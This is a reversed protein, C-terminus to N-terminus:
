DDFLIYKAIDTSDFFIIMEYNFAHGRDVTYYLRSKFEGDDFQISNNPQGLIILLEQKSKDIIGISDLLYNVMQGRQRPTGKQWIAKEFKLDNSISDHRFSSQVMFYIFFLIGFTAIIISGLIIVIKKM